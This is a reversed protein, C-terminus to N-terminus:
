DEGFMERWNQKQEETMLDGIPVDSNQELIIAQLKNKEPILEEQREWVNKDNFFEGGIETGDGPQSEDIRAIHEIGVFYFLSNEVHSAAWKLAKDYVEAATSSEFLVNCTECKVHQKGEKPLQAFLLDARYWM